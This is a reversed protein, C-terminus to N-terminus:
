EEDDSDSDSDIVDGTVADVAISSASEQVVEDHAQIFNGTKANEIMADAMRNDHKVVMHRLNGEILKFLRDVEILKVGELRFYVLWYVGKRQGKIPYALKREDFIRSVAIEGGNETIAAEIKKPAAEPDRAYLATDLIFMGEYFNVSM